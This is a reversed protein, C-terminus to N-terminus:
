LNHIWKQVKEEIEALCFVIIIDGSHIADYATEMPIMEKQRQIICTCALHEFPKINKDILTSDPNIRRIYIVGSSGCFHKTVIVKSTTISELITYYAVTKVGRMPVINLNHMLHYYETDNNIAVVREIGHERAELCKIINAADDKSTAILMDANKLGEEEYLAHDGYRGNLITVTKLLAAARQCVELDHEVIKINVDYTNLHRAIEIGLEDAGFIVINKIALPMKTDILSCLRPIQLPDGYFYLLDDAQISEVEKVLFLHKEREIGILKMTANELQSLSPTAIDSKPHIRLSTLTFTSGDITKISNAQPYQLLSRIAEATRLIPFVAKTIGLKKTISSEHFFSNKLRIIKENCQVYEDIILCSILNVEDSDTVAVFLDSQKFTISKYTDPDEANGVITLLDLSDAIRQLAKSNNDIIIVNHRVNLSQALLYGVKGAGAIIIQM